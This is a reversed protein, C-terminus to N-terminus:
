SLKDRTWSPHGAAQSTHDGAATTGPLGGPAVRAARSALQLRGDAAAENVGTWQRMGMPWVFKQLSTDRVEIEGGNLISGDWGPAAGSARV